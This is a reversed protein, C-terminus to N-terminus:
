LYKHRRLFDVVQKCTYRKVDKSPHPRSVGNLTQNTDANHFAPHRGGPVQEFGFRKLVSSLDRWEVQGVDNDAKDILKSLRRDVRNM